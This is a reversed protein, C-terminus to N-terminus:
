NSPSENNEELCKIVDEAWKTAMEIYRYGFDIAFAWYKDKGETEKAKFNQASIEARKLNQKIEQYNEIFKHLSKITNEEPKAGSFFFKMLFINKMEFNQKTIKGVWENFANRGSETIKFIKKNPKDNQIVERYTVYGYKELKKLELYIHSNQAHWFFNISKQFFKAIDYGSMEKYTLFGLIGYGLNM